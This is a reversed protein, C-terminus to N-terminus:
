LFVSRKKCIPIGARNTSIYAPRELWDKPEAPLKVKIKYIKHRQLCLFWPVKMIYSRPAVVNSIVPLGADVQMGYMVAGRLAATDADPPRVIAGSM